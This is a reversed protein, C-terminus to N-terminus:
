WSRSGVPGLERGGFNNCQDVGGYCSETGFCSDNGVIITNICTYFFKCANDGICSFKGVDSDLMYGCAGEGICSGGHVTTREAQYCAGDGRCSRDHIIMDKVEYCAYYGRCARDAITTNVAEYCAQYDNCSDKGIKTDVAEYCAGYGVCSDEAVTTTGALGECSRPGLCSGCAIQAITVGKCADVGVCKVGPSGDLYECRTGGDQGQLILVGADAKENKKDVKDEAIEDLLRGEQRQAKKLRRSLSTHIKTNSDEMEAMTSLIETVSM